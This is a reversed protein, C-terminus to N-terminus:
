KFIGILEKTFKRAGAPNFHSDGVWDKEADIITCFKQSNFNYLVASFGNSFYLKYPGIESLNQTERVGPIEIIIMEIGNQDCLKAIEGIWYSSDVKQLDLYLEKLDSTDPTTKDRKIQGYVLKTNRHNSSFVKKLVEGGFWVGGFKLIPIDKVGYNYDKLTFEVIPQIKTGDLKELYSNIVLLVYHPRKSYKTLYENLQIYCTKVNNGVLGLNFSKIGKSTLLETDIGYQSLSSGLVLLEFDPEDFKLSEM